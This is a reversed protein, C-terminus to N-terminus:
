YKAYINEAIYRVFPPVIDGIYEQDFGNCIEEVVEKAEKKSSAYHIRDEIGVYYKKILLEELSTRDHFCNRDSIEEEYMTEEEM